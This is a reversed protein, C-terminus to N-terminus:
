HQIFAIRMMNKKPYHYEFVVLDKINIYNKLDFKEFPTKLIPKLSTVEGKSIDIIREVLFTSKSESFKTALDFLYKDSETINELNLTTYIYFNDAKQYFGNNDVISNLMYNDIAFYKTWDLEGDSDIKYVLKSGSFAGGPKILGNVVAVFRDHGIIVGGDEQFFVKFNDSIDITPLDKGSEVLYYKFKTTEKLNKLDPGNLNEYTLYNKSSKLLKGELDWVMYAYGIGATENKKENIIKTTSFVGVLEKRDPYYHFDYARVSLTGELEPTVATSTGDSKVHLLILSSGSNPVYRFQFHSTKPAEKFLIGLLLDDNDALSVNKLKAGPVDLFDLDLAWEQNLSFDYKKLYHKKLYESGALVYFAKDGVFMELGQGAGIYATQIEDVILLEGIQKLTSLDRRVLANYTYGGTKSGKFLLLEYMIDNKIIFNTVLGVAGQYSVNDITVDKSAGSKSDYVKFKNEYFPSYLSKFRYIVQNGDCSMLKYDVSIEDMEPLVSSVQAFSNIALFSIFLSVIVKNM